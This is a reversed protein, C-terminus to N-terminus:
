WDQARSARSDAPPGDQRRRNLEYATAVAQNIWRQAEQLCGQAAALDRALSRELTPNDVQSPDDSM